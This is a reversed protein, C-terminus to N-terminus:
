RYRKGVPRELSQVNEELSLMTQEVMEKADQVGQNYFYPGAEEKIFELINEAALDGLETEHERYFYDRLIGILQEKAEKPLRMNM